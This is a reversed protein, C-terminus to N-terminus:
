NNLEFKNLDSAELSSFGILALQRRTKEECEKLKKKRSSADWGLCWRLLDPLGM